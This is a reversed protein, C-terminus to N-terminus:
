LPREGPYKVRTDGLCSKVQRGAPLDACGAKSRRLKLPPSIQGDSAVEALHLGSQGLALPSGLPGFKM